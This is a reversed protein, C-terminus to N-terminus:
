GRPSIEPTGASRNQERQPRLGLLWAASLLVGFGAVGLAADTLLMARTSVKDHVAGEILAPYVFALNALSWM